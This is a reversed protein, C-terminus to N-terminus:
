IVGGELVSKVYADIANKSWCANRTGPMKIRKPFLGKQEMKWIQSNALGVREYVAPFRLLSDGVPPAPITVNLENTM